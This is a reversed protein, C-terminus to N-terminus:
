DAVYVNQFFQITGATTWWWYDGDEDPTAELILTSGDMITVDISPVSGAAGELLYRSDLSDGYPIKEEGLDEWGAYEGNWPCFNGKLVLVTGNARTSFEKLQYGIYEARVNKNVGGDRYTFREYEGSGRQATPVPVDRATPPVPRGQGGQAFGAAVVMVAITLVLVTKKIM